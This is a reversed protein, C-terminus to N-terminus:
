EERLIFRRNQPHIPRANHPYLAKFRAIDAPDVELPEEAVMWEVNESCPPTTLSGGYLWYELSEPLLATPDIAELTVKEGEEAPFQAALKAFTENTEGPVLFVSLVGLIGTEIDEHVFHAEMPFSRGEVHHESPAHFHFQVLRFREDRRRLRGGEDADIRITHGNNVMVGGGPRWDIRLDPLDAAITQSLDVPSQHSGLACPLNHAESEGWHGPGEEGSYDWEDASGAVACAPYLCLVFCYALLEHRIM